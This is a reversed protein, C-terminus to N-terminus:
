RRADGGGRCRETEFSGRAPGTLPQPTRLLNSEASDTEGRALARFQGCSGLKGPAPTIQNRGGLSKDGLEELLAFLQEVDGKRTHPRQHVLDTLYREAVPGLGPTAATLVLAEGPGAAVGM